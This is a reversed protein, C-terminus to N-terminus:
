NQPKRATTVGVICKETIAYLAKTYFASGSSSSAAGTSPASPKSRPGPSVSGRCGGGPVADWETVDASKVYDFNM